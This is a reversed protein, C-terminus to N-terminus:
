ARLSVLEDELTDTGISSIMGVVTALILPWLAMYSSPQNIIEDLWFANAKALSCLM